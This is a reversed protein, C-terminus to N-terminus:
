MTLLLYILFATQEILFHYQVNRVYQCQDIYMNPSTQHCGATVVLFDPSLQSDTSRFTQQCGAINELLTTSFNDQYQFLLSFFFSYDVWQEHTYWTEIKILLKWLEQSIQLSLKENFARYYEEFISM